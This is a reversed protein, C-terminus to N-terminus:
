RQNGDDVVIIREESDISIAGPSNFQGNNSGFSGFNSLSEGNQSFIQIRHNEYDSVVIRGDSFVAVGYLKKTGGFKFNFQPTTSVIRRLKNLINFVIQLVETPTDVACLCIETHTQSM